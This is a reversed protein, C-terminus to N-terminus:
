EEVLISPDVHAKPHCLLIHFGAFPSAPSNSYVKNPFASLSLLSYLYIEGVKSMFSPWGNLSTLAAAVLVGAISPSIKFELGFSFKVLSIFLIVVVILSSFVLSTTASFLFAHLWSSAIVSFFGNSFGTLSSKDLFVHLFSSM